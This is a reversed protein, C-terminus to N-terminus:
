TPPPPRYWGLTTTTTTTTTTTKVNFCNPEIALIRRAASSPVSYCCSAAASGALFHPVGRSQRVRVVCGLRVTSCLVTGPLARQSVAPQRLLRQALHLLNANRGQVHRTPVGRVLAGTVGRAVAPSPDRFDFGAVTCLSFSETLFSTAGASLRLLTLYLVGGGSEAVSAFLLHSIYAYM